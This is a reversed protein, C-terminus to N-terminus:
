SVAALGHSYNRGFPCVEWLLFAAFDDGLSLPLFTWAHYPEHRVDASGLPM